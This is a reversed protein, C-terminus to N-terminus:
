MGGAPAGGSPAGSAPGPGPPPPMPGPGPPPPNPGPKPPPPIPGPGRKPPPPPPVLPIACFARPGKYKNVKNKKKKKKKEWITDEDLVYKKLQEFTIKNSEETIDPILSTTNLFKEVKPWAKEMQKRVYAPANSPPSYAKDCIDLVKHMLKSPVSKEEYHDEAWTKPFHEFLYNDIRAATPNSSIGTKWGNSAYGTWHAFYLIILDRLSLNKLYYRKNKEFKM